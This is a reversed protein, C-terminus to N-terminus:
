IGRSPKRVRSPAASRARSPNCLLSPERMPTMPSSSVTVPKRRAPTPLMSTRRLELKRMTSALVVFFVMSSANLDIVDRSSMATTSM